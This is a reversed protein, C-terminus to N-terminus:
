MPYIIVSTLCHHIPPHFIDLVWAEISNTRKNEIIVKTIKWLNTRGARKKPETM